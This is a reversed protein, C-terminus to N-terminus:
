VVGIHSRDRDAAIMRDGSRDELRDGALVRLDAAPALRRQNMEVGMGIGVLMDRVPEAGYARRCM